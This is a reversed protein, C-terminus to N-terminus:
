KRKQKITENLKEDWEVLVYTGPSDGYIKEAVVSYVLCDDRWFVGNLSDCVFKALNDLDPRGTHKESFNPKVEGNTRYHNKPRQFTFVLDLNIPADIPKEPAHRHCVSLIETKIEKETM